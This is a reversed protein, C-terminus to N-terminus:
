RASRHTASQAREFSSKSVTSKRKRAVSMAAAARAAAITAPGLLQSSDDAIAATSRSRRRSGGRDVIGASEGDQDAVVAHPEPLEAPSHSHELFGGPAVPGNASGGRDVPHAKMRSRAPM